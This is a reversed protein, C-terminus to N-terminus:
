SIVPMSVFIGLGVNRLFLLHLVSFELDSVQNDKWNKQLECRRQMRIDRKRFVRPNGIKIDPFIFM